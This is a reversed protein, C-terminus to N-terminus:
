INDINETLFLIKKVGVKRMDLVAGLACRNEEEGATEYFQVASISDAHLGSRKDYSNNKVIPLMYFLAM